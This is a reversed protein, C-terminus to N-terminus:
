AGEEIRSYFYGTYRGTSDASKRFRWREESKALINWLTMGFLSARDAYSCQNFLDPHSKEIKPLAKSGLRRSDITDGNIEAKIAEVMVVHFESGEYPKFLEEWHKEQGIPRKQEKGDPNILTM